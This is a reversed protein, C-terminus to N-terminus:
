RHIIASSHLYENATQEEKAFNYLAQELRKSMIKNDTKRKTTPKYSKKFNNIYKPYSNKM